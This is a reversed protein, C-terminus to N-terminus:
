GKRFHRFAILGGAVVLAAVLMLTLDPLISFGHPHEHSVVSPHAFAAAPVWTALGAVITKM